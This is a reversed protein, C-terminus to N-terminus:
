QLSRLRESRSIVQQIRVGFNGEIVVVEGKAIVCNNVVIDVPEVVARSLEVISGTTLKLVEKLPILAHGFSVSVPLEVDLLLDFTERVAPTIQSTAAAPASGGVANAAQALTKPENAFSELLELPLGLFVSAPQEGLTLRIAGWALESPTTKAETGTAPTIEQHMRTTMARGLMSFAQNLSERFTSKLEEPSADEIGAALMVNQGVALTDPESALIFAEAPAGSWSQSWLFSAAPREPPSALLESSVAPRAGAMGEVAAAFGNAFEEIAWKAAASHQPDHTLDPPM